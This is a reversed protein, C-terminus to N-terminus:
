RSQIHVPNTSQSRSFLDHCFYSFTMELTLNYLPKLKWKSSDRVTEQIVGGSSLWIGCQSLGMHHPDLAVLLWTPSCPLLDELDALLYATPSLLQDKGLSVKLHSKMGM